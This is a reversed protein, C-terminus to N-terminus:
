RRTQTTNTHWERPHEREWPKRVDAAGTEDVRFTVWGVRGALVAERLARQRPSLQSGAAKIEVFYAADDEFQVGDIPDGLFRFRNADAFPWGALWPAFSESLQGYRTSQSRKRSDLAKHAAALARWRWLSLAAVAVALALAALLTLLLGDPVDM